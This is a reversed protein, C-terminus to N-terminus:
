SLSAASIRPATTKILASRLNRRTLSYSFVQFGRQLFKRLAAIKVILRRNENRRFKKHSLPTKTRLRRRWHYILALTPTTLLARGDKRWRASEDLAFLLNSGASAIEASLERLCFRVTWWNTPHRLIVNLRVCWVYVCKTNKLRVFIVLKIEPCM